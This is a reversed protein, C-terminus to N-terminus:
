NISGGYQYVLMKIGNYDDFKNRVNKLDICWARIWEMFITLYDVDSNLQKNM